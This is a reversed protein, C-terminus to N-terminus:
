KKVGFHKLLAKADEEGIDSDSDTNKIWEACEQVILQAFKNIADEGVLAPTAQDVFIVGADSDVQKAIQEIRKNV